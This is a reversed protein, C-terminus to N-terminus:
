VLTQTSDSISRRRGAALDIAIGQFSLKGGRRILADIVLLEMPILGVVLIGILLINDSKATPWDSSVRVWRALAFLGIVFAVSLAGAAVLRWWGRRGVAVAM